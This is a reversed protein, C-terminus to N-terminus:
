PNFIGNIISNYIERTIIEGKLINIMPIARSFGQYTDNLRKQTSYIKNQMAKFEAATVPANSTARSSSATYANVTLELANAVRNIDDATIIKDEHASIENINVPIRNYVFKISESYDLHDKTRIEFEHNGVNFVKGTLMFSAKDGSSYERKNFFRRHESNNSSYEVGQYKIHLTMMHNNKDNGITLCIRPNSAYISRNPFDMTCKEPPHNISISGNRDMYSYQSYIGLRDKARIRFALRTGPKLGAIDHTYSTNRLGTAIEVYVGGDKAFELSYTISDADEDISRNWIMSITNKIENSQESCRFNPPAGPVDNRKITESYAIQSRYGFSDVAIVSFKYSKGRLTTSFSNDGMIETNSVNVTKETFTNNGTESYTTVTYYSAPRGNSQTVQNWKIKTINEVINDHYSDKVITIGTASPPDESKKLWDSYITSSEGGHPDFAMVSFMTFMGKPINSTSFTFENSETTSLNVWEGDKNKKIRIRYTIRDGNVDTAAQWRLTLNDGYFNNHEGANSSVSGSLVPPSNILVQNTLVVQKENWEYDDGARVSFSLLDGSRIGIDSLSLKASLAEHSGIVKSSVVGNRQINAILYGYKRSGIANDSLSWNVYAYNIDVSLSAATIVPVGNLVFYMHDSTAEHGTSSTSKCSIRWRSNPYRDSSNYNNGSHADNVNFTHDVSNTYWTHGSSWGSSTHREILISCSHGSNNGTRIYFTNPSCEGPSRVNWGSYVTWLGGDNISGTNPNSSSLSITPKAPIKPVTFTNSYIWVHDNWELQDGVAVAFRVTSGGGAGLGSYSYYGSTQNTLTGAVIWNGNNIQYMVYHYKNSNNSKGINATPLHLTVGSDGVSVSASGSPYACDNYVFYHYDGRTAHGTSSISEAWACWYVDGNGHRDGSNYNNAATPSGEYFGRVASGVTKPYGSANTWGVGYRKYQLWIKTSTANSGKSATMTLSTTGNSGPQGGGHRGGYVTYNRGQGAEPELYVTTSSGNTSVSFGPKGPIIQNTDLTFSGSVTLDTVNVGGYSGRWLWYGSVNITKSGTYAVYKTYTHLLYWQKTSSSGSPMKKSFSSKAGNITINSGTLASGSFTYGEIWLKCTVDSGGTVLKSSCELKLRIHKAVTPSYLNTSAM